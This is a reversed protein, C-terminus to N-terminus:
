SKGGLLLDAAEAPLRKELEANLSQIAEALTKVTATDAVANYARELEALLWAATQGEPLDYYAVLAAEADDLTERIIAAHRGAIDPLWACYKDPHTGAKEADHGVRRVMRRAANELGTRLASQIKMAKGDPQDPASQGPPAPQAPDPQEPEQPDTTPDAPMPPAASALEDGGEVPDLDDWGRVENVTMWAKNGTAKQYYNSKSNLDASLWMLKHRDFCFHHSDDEKETERLLKLWCEAEWACFLPEIAETVYSMNEQELSGYSTTSGVVGLKHVPIGTFNAIEVYSMQRSEILMADRANIQLPNATMGADLIATRHANELGSQMREWSNVLTAKEKPNLKGPFQLIVNPRASNRFFVSSYRETAKALGIAEAAKSLLSYGQMGDYGMGKIHLVDMAQLKRQEGDAETVYWLKGNGRVPHTKEPDLWLLELPDGSGLRNIYAYGNGHSVCNCTLLRKFEFATQIENPARLTLRYAPHEKALSEGGTDVEEFLALDTSGVSNGLLLLAKFWASYTLATNKNIPLGTATTNGGLFADWSAPDNLNFRPNNPTAARFLRTIGDLLNM